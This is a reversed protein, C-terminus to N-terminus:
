WLVSNFDHAVSRLLASNHTFHHCAQTPSLVHSQLYGGHSDPSKVNCPGCDPRCMLMGTLPKSPVVAWRDQLLLGLLSLRLPGLEGMLFNELRTSEFSISPIWKAWDASRYGSSNGGWSHALKNTAFIPLRWNIILNFELLENTPEFFGARDIRM